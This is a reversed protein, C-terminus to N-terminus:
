IWGGTEATTLTKELKAYESQAARLLHKMQVSEGNDAALFAANLAINRINGGAVNLQALKCYDLGETPLKAPFIRQWIESRQAVDPFPFQVVFRIRRLFAPDIASRLNTTLIALGRYTEMRQLLYSVEINAYRDHSDKVESRKGFLADAEDFLLIAGAAEAADFVRRLNKETEGIYKSVVQSLDIRYLDLNLEQALVEAAMTKGTGSSGAFLASIGLGNSSAIAFEWTEYVTTRQRIQAAIERLTQKQSEPLVLSDWTAAPQLRQALNDLRTRSQTRCIEWLLKSNQTKLTLNEILGSQQHSIVSQQNSNAIQQNSNTLQQLKFEESIAYIAPASLNFHATLTQLHGNFDPTLAGLTTQWLTRQEVPTPKHVDLRLSPHQRMDLPEYAAVIVMGQLADLFALAIRQTAQDFEHCDLLLASQSFIAEREWLQAFANREAASSPIDIARLRHLQINLLHCASAAVAQKSDFETGCLQIVPQNSAADSWLTAIQEALQTHSHPLEVQTNLPQVLGSLCDDLYSIGNVYHLVREDIRLRSQTLSEGQTVEILQWRRLPRVPTLASWHATPFVALALSFTPYAQKQTGQANTCLQALTASLEIGACLLLVDREFPTLDFVTCLNLLAPPPSLQAARTEWESIASAPQEWADGQSRVGHQQLVTQVRALAAALYQQNAVQWNQSSDSLM